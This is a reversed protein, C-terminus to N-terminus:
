SDAFTGGFVIFSLKNEPTDSPANAKSKSTNTSEM